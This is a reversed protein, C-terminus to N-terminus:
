PLDVSRAVMRPSVTLIAPFVIFVGPRTLRFIRHKYYDLRRLVRKDPLNCKSLLVGEQHLCSDPLDCRKILPVTIEDTAVYLCCERRAAIGFLPM